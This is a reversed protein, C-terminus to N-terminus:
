RFVITLRWTAVNDPDISEVSLEFIGYFGTRNDAVDVEAELKVVSCNSVLPNCIRSLVESASVNEPTIVRGVEVTVNKM